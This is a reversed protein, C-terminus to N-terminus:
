PQSLKLEIIKLAQGSTFGGGILRNIRMEVPNMAIDGDQIILQVKDNTLVVGLANQAKSKVSAFIESTEIRSRVKSAEVAVTSPVSLRLRESMKAALGTNESLRSLLYGNVLKSIHPASSLMASWICSSYAHQEILSKPNKKCEGTIESKDLKFCADYVYHSSQVGGSIMGIWGLSKAGQEFGHALQPSRLIIATRAAKAVALAGIPILITAANGTAEALEKTRMRNKASCQLYPLSQAVSQNENM